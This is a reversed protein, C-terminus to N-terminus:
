IVIYAKTSKPKNELPIREQKGTLVVVAVVPVVPDVLAVVPVVAVVPDEPVVTEVDTGGDVVPGTPM